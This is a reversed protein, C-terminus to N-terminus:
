EDCAKVFPTGSFLAAFLGAALCTWGGLEAGEEIAVCVYYGPVADIVVIAAAEAALAVALSVLGARIVASARGFAERSIEWLQYAVFGVLPLYLIPWFFRAYEWSFGFEAASRAGLQEHLELVAEDLSLFALIAAALFRMAREVVIAHLWMGVAVTFIMVTAAWQFIGEDADADLFKWRGDFILFNTLYVITQILALVFALAFGRNVVTKGFLTRSASINLSSPRSDM